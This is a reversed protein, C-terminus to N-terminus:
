FSRTDINQVFEGLQHNSDDLEGHTRRLYAGRHAGATLTKDAIM